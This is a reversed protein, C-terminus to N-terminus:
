ISEMRRRPRVLINGQEGRVAAQLYGFGTPHKAEDEGHAPQHQSLPLDKSALGLDAIPISTKHTYTTGNNRRSTVKVPVQAVCNREIDKYFSRGLQSFQWDLKVPDWRKTIMKNGARTRIYETNGDRRPEQTIDYGRTPRKTYNNWTPRQGM